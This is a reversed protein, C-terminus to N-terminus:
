DWIGIIGMVMAGLFFLTLMLLKKWSDKELEPLNFYVGVLEVLVIYLLSGAAISTATGELGKQLDSEDGPKIALGLIIGISITCSFIIMFTIIKANGLEKESTKIVSGLGLGEAFQHFVLVAFLIRLTSMDDQTLVGFDFGIIVSHMATSIEIAYATILDKLTSAASLAHLAVAAHDHEEHDHHCHTEVLAKQSSMETNTEKRDDDNAEGKGKEVMSLGGEEASSYVKVHDGKGSHTSSADHTQCSIFVLQEITLTFIVGFGVFANCLPYGDYLDSLMEDSDPM